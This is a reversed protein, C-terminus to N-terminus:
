LSLASKLKPALSTSFSESLHGGDVFVLYNGQVVSCPDTNCIWLTPDVLQVAMKNAVESEVLHWAPATAQFFPTACAAISFPHLILCDPADVSSAPTDGMLVVRPSAAKLKTLTRIMGAKWAATRADGTLVKGKGDVTAFGKTGAVLVIDPKLKAIKALTAIRWSTCNKMLIHTTGNWPPIDAPWCSSMTLSVFHWNKKIAIAEVAPFWSLAHSDGYLVITHSSKANGYICTAATPLLNLQVHCRDAYPKPRDELASSIMPRINLPVARDILTPLGSATTTTPTPSITTSLPSSTPTASSSFPDTPSPTPTPSIDASVSTAIGAILLIAVFTAKVVRRNM